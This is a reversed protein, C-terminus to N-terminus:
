RDQETRVDIRVLPPLALSGIRADDALPAGDFLVRVRPRPRVRVSAARQAKDAFSAVTEDPDALVVVGLVDGEVFVHLPIM